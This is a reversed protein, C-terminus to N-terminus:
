EKSLLLLEAEVVPLVNSEYKIEKKLNNVSDLIKKLVEEDSNKARELSEIYYDPVGIYQTNGFLKYKCIDSIFNVYQSIFQKLDRGSNYVSEIIEIVKKSDFNYMSFFLEFLTEYNVSGLVKVVDNISIDKKYCICKDLMTVADRMGGGSLKAIYAIVEPSINIGSDNKKEQEVIYQLRKVIGEYSIKTLDFRQVRNLITAPIKQPDTTCFMYITKAPPEELTKLLANWAGTSLMHTEDLIYIKYEADFAIYNSNDLINRIDEVGNNSAADMEIIGASSGNIEKALIRALTTKGVGSSGTFLYANRVTGTSLQNRLIDMVEQQETVEDFSQPRYRTYLPIYM